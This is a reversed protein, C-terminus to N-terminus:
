YCVIQPMTNADTGIWSTTFVIICTPQGPAPVVIHGPYDYIPFPTGGGTNSGDNSNGSDSGAQESAKEITLM